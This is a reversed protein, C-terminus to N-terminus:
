YAKKSLAILATKYNIEWTEPNNELDVYRAEDIQEIKDPFQDRLAKTWKDNKILYEYKKDGGLKEKVINEAISLDEDSLASSDFHLMDEVAISLNLRDKLKVIYGLYIEIADFFHLSLIKNRACEELIEIVWVTNVLFEGLVALNSTGMQSLDYALGLHVISLAMRDGCTESAGDIISSFVEAFEANEYAKEIFILIKEALAKQVDGRANYDGIYSIRNLWSSLTDMNVKKDFDPFVPVEKKLLTCIEELVKEIPKDDGQERQRVLHSFRPGQHGEIASASRLRQLVAESLGAGTLQVTCNNSLNLVTDPLGVLTENRELCLM